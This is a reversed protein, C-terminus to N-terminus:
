GTITSRPSQLISVPVLLRPAIRWNEEKIFATFLGEGILARLEVLAQILVKIFRETDYVVDALEQSGIFIVEKNLNLKFIRGYLEMWCWFSRAPFALEIDSINGLLGFLHQPPQPIEELKSRDIGSGGGDASPTAMHPISARPVPIDTQDIFYTLECSYPV